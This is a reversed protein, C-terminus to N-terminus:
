ARLKRPKLVTLCKFRFVESGSDDTGATEHWVEHRGEKELNSIASQIDIDTLQFVIRIGTNAPKLYEVETKKLWAQCKIGRERLANWYQVAPYPDAASYLTGGFISGQLNRNLISKKVLIEVRLFDKSVSKVVIRNFLLPPYLSMAWKAQWPKSFM